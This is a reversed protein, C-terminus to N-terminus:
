KISVVEERIEEQEHILNHILKYLFITFSESTIKRLKIFLILLNLFIIPILIILIRIFNFLLCYIYIILGM